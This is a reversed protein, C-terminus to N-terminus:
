QQRPRCPFQIRHQLWRHSNTERWALCLRRSVTSSSHSSDSSWKPECRGTSPNLSNKLVPFSHPASYIANEAWNVQLLLGTADSFDPFAFSAGVFCNCRTVSLLVLRNLASVAQHYSSSKKAKPARDPWVRPDCM